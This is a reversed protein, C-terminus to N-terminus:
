FVIEVNETKSVLTLNILVCISTLDIRVGAHLEAGNVNM